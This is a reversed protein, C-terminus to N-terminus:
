NIFGILLVGGQDASHNQIVAATVRVHGLPQLVAVDEGAVYTKM